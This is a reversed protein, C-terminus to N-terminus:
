GNEIIYAPEDQGDVWATLLYCVDREDVSYRVHLRRYAIDQIALHFEQEVRGLM